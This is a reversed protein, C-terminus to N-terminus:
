FLGAHLTVLGFEATASRRVRDAFLEFLDDFGDHAKRSEAIFNLHDALQLVEPPTLYGQMGLDDYAPWSNNDQLVAVGPFARNALFLAELLEALKCPTTERRNYRYLHYELDANVTFLGELFHYRSKTGAVQIAPADSFRSYFGDYPTSAFRDSGRLEGGAHRIATCLLVTLVEGVPTKMLARHLRSRRLNNAPLSLMVPSWGIDELYGEPITHWDATGDELYSIADPAFTECFARVCHSNSFITCWQPLLTETLRAWSVPIVCDYSSM